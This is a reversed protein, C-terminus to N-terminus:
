LLTSKGCARPGILSVFQVAKVKLNLDFLVKTEGFWHSVKECHLGFSQQEVDEIM